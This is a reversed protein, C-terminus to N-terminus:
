PDAGISLDSTQVVLSITVGTLQDRLTDQWLQFLAIQVTLQNQRGSFFESAELRNLGRRSAM